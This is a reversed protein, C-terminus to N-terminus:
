RINCRGVQKSGLPLFPARLSIACQKEPSKPVSPEFLLYPSKKKKKAPVGKSSPVLFYFVSWHKLSYSFLFFFFFQHLVKEGSKTLYWTLGVSALGVWVFRRNQRRNQQHQPGRLTFTPNCVWCTPLRCGCVTVFGFVILGVASGSDGILWIDDHGRM